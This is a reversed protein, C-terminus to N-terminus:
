RLHEDGLARSEELFTKFILNIFLFCRLKPHSLHRQILQEAKTFQIQWELGYLIDEKQLKAKKPELFGIPVLNCGIQQAHSVIEKPPWQYITNTRKDKIKPRKRLYWEIGEDPWFGMELSPIFDLLAEKALPSDHDLREERTMIRPDVLTAGAALSQKQIKRTLEAFRNIFNAMFQRSSMYVKTEMEVETDPYPDDEDHEHKAVVMRKFCKAPLSNRSSIRFGGNSNIVDRLAKPKKTVYGYNDEELNYIPDVRASGAESPRKDGNPIEPAKGKKGSPHGEDRPSLRPSRVAQIGRRGAVLEQGKSPGGLREDRPSGGFLRNNTVPTGVRLNQEMRNSLQRLLEEGTTPSDMDSDDEEELIEGNGTYKSKIDLKRNKDDIPTPFRDYLLDKNAPRQMQKPSLPVPTKVGDQYSDLPDLSSMDHMVLQDFSDVCRLKVYGPFCDSRDYFFPVSLSQRSLTFSAGSQKPLM